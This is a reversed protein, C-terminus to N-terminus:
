DLERWTAWALYGIGLACIVFVVDLTPEKRKFPFQIALDLGFLILLLVAIVISSITLGKAM